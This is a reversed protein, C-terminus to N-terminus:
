YARKTRAYREVAEVCKDDADRLQCGLDSPFKKKADTQSYTQLIKLDPLGVEYLRYTGMCNCFRAPVVEAAVFISSSDAGWRVFATNPALPVDCQVPSGFDKLVSAAVDVKAVGAKDVYFAYINSGIGGGGETLTVAFAKSDPSWAVEGNFGALKIKFTKKGIGVAINLYREEPDRANGDLRISLSKQGDPAVVIVPRQSAIDLGTAKDSYLTHFGRSCTSQPEQAVAACAPVLLLVSLLRHIRMASRQGM